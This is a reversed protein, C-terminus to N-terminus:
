EVNKNRKNMEQRRPYEAVLNILTEMNKIPAHLKNSLKTNPIINPIM